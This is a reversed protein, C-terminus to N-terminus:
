HGVGPEISSGDDDADDLDELEDLEDAAPRM